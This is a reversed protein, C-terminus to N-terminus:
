RTTPEDAILLDPENALAMAIMVAPTPWWIIRIPAVACIFSDIGAMELLELVKSRRKSASVVTYFWCKGSKSKWTICPTLRTMPEQFIMGVRAGRITHLTATKAHIMETGDFVISGSPYSATAPTAISPHFPRYRIKGFASEGVLAVTEGRQIDFNVNQVVDNNM